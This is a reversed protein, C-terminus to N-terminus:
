LSLKNEMIKKDFLSLPGDWEESDFFIAVMISPILRDGAWFGSLFEGMSLTKRGEEAFTEGQEKKRKM